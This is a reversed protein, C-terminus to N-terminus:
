IRTARAAFCGQKANHIDVFKVAPNSFMDELKTALSTGDVVDASEMLNKDNFGRVSILRSSIVKPVEGPKLYAQKADKRVYIAHRAAYPSNGPLHQYNVLILDEGIKADQLSIRCPFGPEADATVKHANHTDLESDSLEFLHTFPERPLAHIQFTM